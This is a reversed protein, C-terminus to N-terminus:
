KSRVFDYAFSGLASALVGLILFSPIIKRLFGDYRKQWRVSAAGKGIEFATRAPVSLFMAVIATTLAVAWFWTPVAIKDNAGPFAALQRRLILELARGHDEPKVGKELLERVEDSWPDRQIRFLGTLLAFMVCLCVLTIWLMWIGLPHIGCLQRFWDPKNQEAWRHLVVFLEDAPESAEPLTVLSLSRTQKQDLTPVELDGRVGGCRLRVEIKTVEHHQCNVDNAAERFSTVQLKNGTSFTLTIARGDDPYESEVRQRMDKEEVKSEDGPHETESEPKGRRNRERRLANRIQVKKHAELRSWQEDLISDLAALAAEDLLWPGSFAAETKRIIQAM